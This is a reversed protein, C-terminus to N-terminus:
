IISTSSVHFLPLDPINTRETPHHSPVAIQHAKAENHLVGIQQANAENNLIGSISRQQNINLSSYNNISHVNKHGSIQMIHSPPVGADNLKQVLHKRASHNTLHRMNAKSSMTSMLTSLKNKGIPQARYWRVGVEPITDAMFYKSNTAIYFPSNENNYNDPRLDKFKKYASVPCRERNVKNSWM